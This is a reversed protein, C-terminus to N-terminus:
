LRTVSPAHGLANLATAENRPRDRCVADVRDEGERAAVDHRDVLPAPVLADLDDVDPVLLGGRV